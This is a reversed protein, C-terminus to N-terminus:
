RAATLSHQVDLTSAVASNQEFYLVSCIFVRVCFCHSLYRRSEDDSLDDNTKSQLETCEARLQDRARHLADLQSSMEAHRPSSPMESMERTKAEM